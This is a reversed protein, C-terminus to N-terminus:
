HVKLIDINLRIMVFITMNHILHFSFVHDLRFYGCLLNM